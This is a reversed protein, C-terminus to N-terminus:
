NDVAIASAIQLMTTRVISTNVARSFHQETARRANCRLRALEGTDLGLQAIAAVLADVNGPEVVLGCEYTRLVYALDSREPCIGIVAAGAALSYYTKSPMSIGGMGKDLSVLAIDATTLSYPLVEGPQLPLLTINPDAYEKISTCICNWQPGAGIIMFHIDTRHRLRRAASVISCIDHSLGLNGSYMVTIKHQQRHKAAFSNKWKPVPRILETDVWTPVITIPVSEPVYQSVVEKMYPGLTFVHEAQAFVVRNFRRWLRMLPNTPKALGRREIIDPYVDDVWIVYRRGLLKKQLYGLLPLFPPQSVMFIVPKGRVGFVVKAAHLLYHLWTTLRRCMTTSDYKPGRRFTVPGIQRNDSDSFVLSEHDPAAVDLCLEIFFNHLPATQKL